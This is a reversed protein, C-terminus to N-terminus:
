FLDDTTEAERLAGLTTYRLKQPAENSYPIPDQLEFLSGEEFRIVEKGAGIEDRDIYDLAPRRLQAQEPPVADKVTAIYRVEGVGRSVYMAVYDFERRARVFGWANNEKLFNIGSPRTPFVAVTSEPTGGLQQPDIKEVVASGGSDTPPGARPRGQNGDKQSGSPGYQRNDLLKFSDAKTVTRARDFLFYLDIWEDPEARRFVPVCTTVHENPEECRYEVQDRAWEGEYELDQRNRVQYSHEDAAAKVVRLSFGDQDQFGFPGGPETVKALDSEKVDSLCLRNRPEAIAAFPELEPHREVFVRQIYSKIAENYSLLDFEGAASVIQLEADTQEVQRRRPRLNPCLFALRDADLLYAYSFLRSRAPSDKVPDHGEAYYKSDLVCVTEEGDKIIHDPEHYAAGEDGFPVIKHNGKATVGELSGLHDYEKIRDLAREVAVQSYEEFLSEMSLVYDVVLERPGDRLQQGLSSSVIAKSVDFAKKYYQRQPPLDTISLAQYENMRRLESTTGLDELRDVERNVESFIRRYAPHPSEPAHEQFLRLLATGAFHLLSNVPNDYETENHIWQPDITGKARNLLTQEVDITGRGELSNTRQIVLERIYGHRHLNRLGDLYNIALIIFFDELQIDGSVFDQLPVGHYSLTRDQEYIALLMDFIHGWEIKPDVQIRVSPTLSVVGVVDRASIDMLENADGRVSVTLVKHTSDSELARQEKTFVGQSQRTFSARRLREKIDSPCGVITIEGREDINYSDQGYEFEQKATAM